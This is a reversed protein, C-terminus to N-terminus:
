KNIIPPSILFHELEERLTSEEESTMEKEVKVDKNFVIDVRSFPKPIRFKDWTKLEWYRSYEVHVPVISAQTASALRIAGPNLSYVPGRPGDPTICLSSGEQIKRAMEIMAKKGRRSSSGRVSSIGHMGMVAEILAGDKSASTLCTIDNSKIMTRVGAGLAFIRNHWFVFIRANFAGCRHISDQTHDTIRYRLFRSYLQIIIGSLAGIIKEKQGGRINDRKM